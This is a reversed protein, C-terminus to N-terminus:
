GKRIPVPTAADSQSAVPTSSAPEQPPAVPPLEISPEASAPSPTAPQSNAPRRKDQGVSAQSPQRKGEAKPAERLVAQLKTRLEHRQHTDPDTPQTTGLNTRPYRARVSGIMAELQALDRQIAEPAGPADADGDDSRARELASAATALSTRADRLTQEDSELQHVFQRAEE